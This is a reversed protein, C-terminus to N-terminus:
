KEEEDLEEQDELEQLEQVEQEEKEQHEGMEQEWHEGLRISLLGEQQLYRPEINQL